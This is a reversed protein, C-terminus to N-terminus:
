KEFLEPHIFRTLAMIIGDKYGETRTIANKTMLGFHGDGHKTNQQKFVIDCVEGLEKGELILRLMVPPVPIQATAGIGERRKTDRIVAWGGDFYFEGEHFIGGELGVGFEAHLLELSRKARTRAGQISEKISMPQDSVGSKIDVGTVEWVEGPWITEFALKVANVKVPNKSGVAVKM